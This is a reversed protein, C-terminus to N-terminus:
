VAAGKRYRSSKQRGKHVRQAIESVGVSTKTASRASNEATSRTRKVVRVRRESEKGLGGLEALCTKRPDFDCVRASM